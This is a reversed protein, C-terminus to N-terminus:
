IGKYFKQLEKLINKYILRPAATAYLLDIHNFGRIENLIYRTNTLKNALRFVDQKDLLLDRSGYFLQLPVRVNRLSYEPPTKSRYHHYNESKSRYDYQQFK